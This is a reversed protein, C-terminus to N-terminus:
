TTLITAVKAETKRKRFLKEKKKNWSFSRIKSLKKVYYLNQDMLSDDKNNKAIKEVSIKKPKKYRVLRNFNVNVYESFRANRGEAVLKDVTSEIEQFVAPDKIVELLRTKLNVRLNVLSTNLKLWWFLEKKHLSSDKEKLKSKLTKNKKQSSIRFQRESFDELDKDLKEFYKNIIYDYKEHNTDFNNLESLDINYDKKLRFFLLFFYYKQKKFKEIM